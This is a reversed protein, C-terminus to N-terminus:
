YNIESCYFKFPCKKKSRYKELNGIFHVLLKKMTVFNFLCFFGRCLLAISSFVKETETLQFFVESCGSWLAPGSLLQKQSSGQAAQPGAEQLLAALLRWEGTRLISQAKANGLKAAQILHLAGVAEDKPM